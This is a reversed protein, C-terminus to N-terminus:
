SKTSKRRRRRRKVNEFHRRRRRCCLKAFHVKCCRGIPPLLVTFNTATFLEPVANQRTIVPVKSFEVNDEGVVM